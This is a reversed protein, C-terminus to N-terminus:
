AQLLEKRSLDDVVKNAKRPHYKLEFDYHKTFEM